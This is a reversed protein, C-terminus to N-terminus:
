LASAASTGLPGGNTSHDHYATAAPKPTQGHQLLRSNQGNDYEVSGCDTSTFLALMPLLGQTEQRHQLLQQEAFANSLTKPPTAAAATQGATKGVNCDDTCHFPGATAAPRPLKPPSAASQPEVQLWKRYAAM